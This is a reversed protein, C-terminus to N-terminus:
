WYTNDQDNYFSLRSSVKIRKLDLVVINRATVRLTRFFATTIPACPADMVAGDSLFTFAVMSFFVNGFFVENVSCTTILM